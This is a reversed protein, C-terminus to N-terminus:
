LNEDRVELLPNKSENRMLMIALNTSSDNSLDEDYSYVITTDDLSRNFKELYDSLDKVSKVQFNM